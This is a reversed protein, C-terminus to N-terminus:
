RAGIAQSDRGHGLNGSQGLLREVPRGSLYGGQRLGLASITFRKQSQKQRGLAAAPGGGLSRSNRIAAETLHKALEPDIWRLSRTLLRM